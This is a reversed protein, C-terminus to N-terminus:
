DDLADLLALAEDFWALAAANTLLGKRLTLHMLRMADPLTEPDAFYRAAIAEYEAQRVAAAAQHRTVEARLEGRRAHTGAYLRVLLEDKIVPPAAPTSMWAGLAERGRTTLGYVKRAPKGTQEVTEFEVAGDETLRGLERYIQQHSAQWFYGVGRDFARAIEYGTQPRNGLSALIAHRLSM